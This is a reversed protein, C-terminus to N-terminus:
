GLGWFLDVGSLSIFDIWPENKHGLKPFQRLM